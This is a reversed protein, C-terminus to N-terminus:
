SGADIDGSLPLPLLPLRLALVGGAGIGAAAVVDEAVGEFRRAVAPSDGLAWITKSREKMRALEDM